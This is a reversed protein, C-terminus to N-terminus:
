SEKRFAGATADSSPSQPPCQPSVPLVAWWGITPLTSFYTSLALQAIPASAASRDCTAVRTAHSRRAAATRADASRKCRYAPHLPASAVMWIPAVFPSPGPMTLVQDERLDHFDVLPAGDLQLRQRLEDRV